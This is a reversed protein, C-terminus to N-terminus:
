EHKYKLFNKDDEYTNYISFILTANWKMENLVQIKM